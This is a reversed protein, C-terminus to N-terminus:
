TPKLPYQKFYSVKKLVLITLEKLLSITTSSIKIKKYYEPNHVFRPITIFVKDGWLDMSLPANNEPIYRGTAIANQEEGDSPWAFAIQKWVYKEQLRAAYTKDTLFVDCASILVVLWLISHM